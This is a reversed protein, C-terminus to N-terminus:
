WYTGSLFTLRLFTVVSDATLELTANPDRIEEDDVFVVFVGDAHAQLAVATATEADAPTPNSVEGFAIKGDRAAVGIDEPTLFSIVTPETQKDNFRAVERDVCARILERLTMASAPVKYPVTRLRKKGLRKLRITLESM